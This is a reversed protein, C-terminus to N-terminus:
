FLDVLTRTTRTPSNNHLFKVNIVKHEEGKKNKLKLCAYYQVLQLLSDITTLVQIFLLIELKTEKAENLM